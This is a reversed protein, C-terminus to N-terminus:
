AACGSLPPGVAGPPARRADESRLRENTDVPGWAKFKIEALQRELADLHEEASTKAKAFRGDASADLWHIASVLEAFNGAIHQKFKAGIAEVSAFAKSVQAGSDTLGENIMGVKAESVASDEAFKAQVATADAKSDLLRRIAEIDLRADHTRQAQTRANANIQGLERVVFYRLDELSTGM